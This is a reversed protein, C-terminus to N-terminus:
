TCLRASANRRHRQRLAITLALCVVMVLGYAPEPTESSTIRVTNVSEDDGAGEGPMIFERVDAIIGGTIFDTGGGNTLPNAFQLAGDVPGLGQIGFVLLSPGSASPFGDWPPEFIDAPGFPVFVATSQLDINSYTNTSADYQFSGTVSGGLSFTLPSDLTWTVLDAKLLFASPLIGVAFFTFARAIPKRTM